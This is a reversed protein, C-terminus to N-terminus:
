DPCNIFCTFQQMLMKRNAFAVNVFQGVGQDKLAAFFLLLGRMKREPANNNPDPLSANQVFLGGFRLVSVAYATFVLMAAFRPGRGANVLHGVIIDVQIGPLLVQSRLLLKIQAPFAGEQAGAPFFGVILTFAWLLHFGTVLLVCFM